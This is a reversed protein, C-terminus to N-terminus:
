PAAATAMPKTPRDSSIKRSAGDAGFFGAGTAGACVIAWRVGGEGTGVVDGAPEFGGDGGDCGDVDVSGDRGDVVAGATEGATGCLV